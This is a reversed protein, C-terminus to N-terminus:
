HNRNFNSQHLVYSAGLWERQGQGHLEDSQVTKESECVRECMVVFQYGREKKRQREKAITTRKVSVSEREGRERM